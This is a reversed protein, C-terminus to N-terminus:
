LMKLAAKVVKEVPADPNESLIKSVAKNSPTSSFGLMQLAAVAESRVQSNEIIKTGGSMVVEKNIKDKLDVIIRQATKQGIGKVSKIQSVNESSIAAEFEEVSLSSLIMRATNAGVGSVGILLLFIKREEEQFFGFLDHRDERIVEYIYLKCISKDQIKSFTNLSINVFYGIDNNDIVVSTPNLTDIKGKIYEIM